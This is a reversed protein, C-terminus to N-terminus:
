RKRKSNQRKKRGYGKRAAKARRAEEAWRDIQPCYQRITATPVSQTLCFSGLFHLSARWDAESAAWKLALAEVSRSVVELPPNQLADWDPVPGLKELEERPITLIIPRRGADELLRAHYAALEATGWPAQPLVGFRQIRPAVEKSTAHFLIDPLLRQEEPHLGIM